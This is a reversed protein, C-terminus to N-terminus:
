QREKMERARSTVYSEWTRVQTYAQKPSQLPDGVIKVFVDDKARRLFSGSQIIANAAFRGVTVVDESDAVPRESSQNQKFLGMVEAGDRYEYLREDTASPNEPPIEALEQVFYQEYYDELPM